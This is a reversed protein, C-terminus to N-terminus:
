VFLMILGILAIVLWVINLVGPQYAKKKFSIYAIGAAGVGNMLYSIITKSSIMNFSVLAYSVIILAVGIWGIAEEHINKM